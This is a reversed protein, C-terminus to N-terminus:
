RANAEEKSSTIHSPMSFQLGQRKSELYLGLADQGAAHDTWYSFGQRKLDEMLLMWAAHDWSLNRRLWANLERMPFRPTTIPAASSQRGRRRPLDPDIVKTRSM